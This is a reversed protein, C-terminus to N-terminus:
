NKCVDKKKLLVRGCVYSSIKQECMWERGKEKRGCLM